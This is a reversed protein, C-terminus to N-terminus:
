EDGSGAAISRFYKRLLDQYRPPFRERGVADVSERQRLRRPDWPGDPEPDSLTPEAASKGAASQPMSKAEPMPKTPAPTAEPANPMKPQMPPVQPPRSNSSPPPNTSNDSQELLRDIGEILRRQAARTAAGPDDKELRGSAEAFDQQLEKVIDAKKPVPQGQSAPSSGALLVMAAFALFCRVMAAGPNSYCTSM